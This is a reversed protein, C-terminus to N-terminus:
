GPLQVAEPHQRRPHRAARAGVSLKRFVSATPISAQFRRMYDWMLADLTAAPVEIADAFKLFAAELERYHRQPEQDETFLGMRRGARLIHVDIIAVQSSGRHNRVIWSATKLGIGPLLALQDRLAADSAHVETENLQRLCASLYRAKQRPFRYGCPRGYIVFPESLAAELILSSPCGVLLGRDRLRAFAALGLEARMGFGGLLCAAMEEILTRGLRLDEYTGLLAHQWAQGRWFAPTLLEEFAGWPIGPLVCTNARPLALERLVGDVVTYMLQV